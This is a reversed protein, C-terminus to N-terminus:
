SRFVFPYVVKVIGGSPAPFKLTGIVRAVCSAVTPDALSSGDTSVSSVEGSRGIVLSVKVTGALKPNKALQKEYCATISPKARAIVRKIVDAPLSGSASVGSTSVSATSKKGAPAAPAAAKPKAAPATAVPSPAAEAAAEAPADAPKLSLCATAVMEALAQTKSGAGCDFAKTGVMVRTDTEWSGEPYLESRAFKVVVFGGGTEEARVINEVGKATKDSLKAFTASYEDVPSLNVRLSGSTLNVHKADGKVVTGEPMEITAGIADIEIPVLKAPPPAPEAAAAPKASSGSGASAAPKDHNSKCGVAALLLLGSSMGVWRTNM